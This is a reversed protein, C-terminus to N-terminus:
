SFKSYNHYNPQTHNLFSTSGFKSYLESRNRGCLIYSIKDPIFNATSGSWIDSVWITECVADMFVHDMGQSQRAKPRAPTIPSYWM